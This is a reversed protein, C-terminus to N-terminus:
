HAAARLVREICFARELYLVRVLRLRDTTWFQQLLAQVRMKGGGRLM